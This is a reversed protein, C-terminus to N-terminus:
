KSPKCASPNDPWAIPAPPHLAASISLLLEQAVGVPLQITVTEPAPAPMPTVPAPTPAKACGTLLLALLIAAKNM